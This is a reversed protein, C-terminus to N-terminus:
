RALQYILSKGFGTPLVALVDKKSLFEALAYRQEEKLTIIPDMESIVASIATNIRTLNVKGSSAEPAAMVTTKSVSEQM